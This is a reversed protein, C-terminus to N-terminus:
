VLDTPRGTVLISLMGMLGRRGDEAQMVDLLSDVCQIVMIGM